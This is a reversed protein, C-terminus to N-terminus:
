STAESSFSFQAAYAVRKTPCQRLHHTQINCCSDVWFCQLGDKQAREACLRIKAYGLKNTGVGDILDKFTVEQDDAEWTHSFIAYNPINSTLFRTLIPKGDDGLELLHM